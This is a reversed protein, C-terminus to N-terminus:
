QVLFIVLGSADPFSDFWFFGIRFAFNSYVYLCFPSLDFRKVGGQRIPAFDDPLDGNLRDKISRKRAAAIQDAYM